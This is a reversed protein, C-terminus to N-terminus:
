PPRPIRLDPLAVVPGGDARPGGVTARRRGPQGRRRGAELPELVALGPHAAVRGHGPDPVQIPLRVVERDTLPRVSNRFRRVAGRLAPKRPRILPNRGNRELLPVLQVANDTAAASGTSRFTMDDSWTITQRSGVPEFMTSGVPRQGPGPRQHRSNPGRQRTRPPAGARPGTESSSLRHIWSAARDTSARQQNRERNERRTTSRRRLRPIRRGRRRHTREPLVDDGVADLEEALSTSLLGRLRAQARRQEIVHVLGVDSKLGEVATDLREGPDGPEGHVTPAVGVGARAAPGARVESAPLHGVEVQNLSPRDANARGREQPLPPGVNDRRSGNVWDCATNDPAPPLNGEGAYGVHETLAWTERPSRRERGAHAVEVQGSDRWIDHHRSWSSDNEPMWWMPDSRRDPHRPDAVAFGRGCQADVTAEWAIALGCALALAVVMATFRM